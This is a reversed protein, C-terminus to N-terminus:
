RVQRLLVQLFDADSIAQEVPLEFRFHTCRQQPTFGTAELESIRTLEHKFFSADNERFDLTGFHPDPATCAAFCSLIADSM